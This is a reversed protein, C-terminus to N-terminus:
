QGKCLYHSSPVKAHMLGYPLGASNSARRRRATARRASPSPTRSTARCIPQEGVETLRQCASTWAPPASASRAFGAGPRGGRNVARCRPFSRFSSRFPAGAWPNLVSRHVKGRTAATMARVKPTVYWGAWTQFIRRRSPHLQWGARAAPWPLGFPPGPFPVLRRDLAPPGLPPRMYFFARRAPLLM